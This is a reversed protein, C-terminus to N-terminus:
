RSSEWLAPWAVGVEILLRRLLPLSIGVVGHHDGEVGEVFAGGLGDITFSGAVHLPEGTAVYADIEADALRAFNIKTASTGGAQVDVAGTGPAPAPGCAAPSALGAPLYHVSHGTYLVASHGSLQRLRERAEAADAPKGVVQGGFELMSDCGVLVTPRHPDLGALPADAPGAQGAPTIPSGAAAVSLAAVVDAAKAEALAQVQQAPGAGPTAALLADLVADEDVKSVRVLPHLGANRLTTLRAPSASALVLQVRTVPGGAGAAGRPTM